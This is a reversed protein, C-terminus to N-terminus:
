QRILSQIKEIMQEYREKSTAELNLRLLPETNSKRINCHWDPYNISIGDIHEISSADSFADEIRRIAGDKDEVSFNIEGSQIYKNHKKILESASCQERELIKIFLLVPLITDETCVGDLNFYYHGSLEGAFTAGTKRMADKIFIHGVRVPQANGGNQRITEPVAWSARVDYLITSRPYKTLFEKSLIATLIDGPIAAGNEDFLACRDGDGDFAVGFDYEGNTLEEKIDQQNEPLLPNAPHHPFTGDITFYMRKITHNTGKFVTDAVTGGPANGSDIVFSFPNDKEFDIFTKIHNRYNDLLTPKELIEGTKNQESPKPMAQERWEPHTEVIRKLDQLDKSNFPVADKQVIKFGNYEPPNHSATIMVGAECHYSFVGYYFVPTTTLGFDIVTVGSDRFGRILSKRMSPSSERGDRAIAISSISLSACIGRAIAYATKEDLEDPYVGRIDYAHFISMTFLPLTTSINLYAAYNLEQM